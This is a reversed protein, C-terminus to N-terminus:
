KRRSVRSWRSLLGVPAVSVRRAVIKITSGTSNTQFVWCFLNEVKLFAQVEGIKPHDPELWADVFTERCVVGFNMAAEMWYCDSFEIVSRKEEPHPTWDAWEVVLRVTDSYGPNSRDLSLDLLQVDHWAYSQLEDLM